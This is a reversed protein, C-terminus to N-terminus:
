VAPDSRGPDRDFVDASRGARSVPPRRGPRNRLRELRRCASPDLSTAIGLARAVACAHQGGAGGFTVLVYDAPDYGKAVSIKRIARVMNANAVDIFGQALEAPTFKRGSRRPPLGSASRNSGTRSRRGISRFPFGSPPLKGLFLNVDTVTLPGGRGYCAPVRIPVPM